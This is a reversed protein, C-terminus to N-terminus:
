RRPTLTLIRALNLTLTLTLTLTLALTLTGSELGAKPTWLFGYAVWKLLM